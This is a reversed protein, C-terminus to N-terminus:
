KVIIITGSAWDYMSSKGKSWFISIFYILAIAQPVILLIWIWFPNSIGHREYYFMWHIGTHAIEWPLFKLVNRLVIRSNKLLDKSSVKLGSIQKGISGQADSKEFLIFYLVVPLTLSLFGVIQGSVAGLEPPDIIYTIVFLILGYVTIIAYDIIAALIRRLIM